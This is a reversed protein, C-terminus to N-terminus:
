NEWKTNTFESEFLSLSDCILEHKEKSYTWCSQLTEHPSFNDANGLLDSMSIHVAIVPSAEVILPLEWFDSLPTHTHTHVSSLLLWPLMEVTVWFSTRPDCIKQIIRSDGVVEGYASDEQAVHFIIIGKEWINSFYCHRLEKFTKTSQNSRICWNLPWTLHINM